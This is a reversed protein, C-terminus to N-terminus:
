KLVELSVSEEKTNESWSFSIRSQMSCANRHEMSFTVIATSISPLLHDVARSGFTASPDSCSPYDVLIPPHSFGPFITM